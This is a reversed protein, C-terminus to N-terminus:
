RGPRGCGWPRAAPPAEPCPCSGADGLRHGALRPDVEQGDRARVEHLQIHTHTGAPHPVQEVLGLLVGGGDHEDVLDVRHAPLPAGAQAAAVVLPFLGQVLQQHLHVAKAGILSDDDHRGGVPRVDQVGGQQPRAPEVALDIHSQGVDLAPLLDQLDVGPLLGQRLVYGEGIHRLGGGAEGTRIQLVQEILRSQERGPLVPTENGRWSRWSAM